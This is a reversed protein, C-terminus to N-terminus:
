SFGRVSVKAAVFNTATLASRAETPLYVVKAPNFDPANLARLTELKDAFLPAQGATVLPQWSARAQWPFPNTTASLQSIALFDALSEPFANKRSYFLSEVEAEGPLYLSYFGDVKPIDDLLNCNAFLARRLGVYYVLSDPVAAYDFFDHAPLSIMARSGGAVPQPKLELLGPAFARAEVTPNQRPAHTLVDLAVLLVLSFALLRQQKASKARPLL